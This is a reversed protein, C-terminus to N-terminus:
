EGTLRKGKNFYEIHKRNNKLKHYGRLIVYVLLPFKDGFDLGEKELQKEFKLLPDLSRVNFQPDALMEEKEDYIKQIRTEMEERLKDSAPTANVCAKCTCEFGYTALQRQREKASRHPQCYSYSLQQGPKIDRLALVQLSFTPIDFKVYVNPSCSAWVRNTLSTDSSYFSSASM